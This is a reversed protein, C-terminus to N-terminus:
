PSPVCIAISETVDRVHDLSKDFQEFRRRAKSLDDIDAVVFLDRDLLKGIPCRFQRVAALSILYKDM